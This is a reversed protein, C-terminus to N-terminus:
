DFKAAPGVAEHIETIEKQTLRPIIPPRNYRLVGNDLVMRHYSKKLIGGTEPLIPTREIANGTISETVEVMAPVLLGRLVSQALIEMHEALRDFLATELYKAQGGHKKVLYDEHQRHAYIQDVIIESRLIGEGVMEELLRTRAGFSGSM